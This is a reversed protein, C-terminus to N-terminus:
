RKSNRKKPHELLAEIRRNIAENPNEDGAWCTATQFLRAVGQRILFGRGPPLGAPPQGPPQRMNNFIDISDTGGLLVGCGHRKFSKFFPDMYEQPFESMAGAIMYSIGYDRGQQLCSVLQMSENSPQEEKRTDLDFSGYDDVVLLIHPYERVLRTKDYKEPDKEVKADVESRRDRIEKELKTLVANLTKVSDVYAKINPLSALSFLSRSHYDVIIFQVRESSYREALSILCTQLFTTKGTHRATGAILYTPGDKYLNFGIPALM